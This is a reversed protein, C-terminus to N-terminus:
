TSQSCGFCSHLAHDCSDVTHLVMNSWTKTVWGLRLSMLLPSVWNSAYALTFLVLSCIHTATLERSKWVSTMLVMEKCLQWRVPKPKTSSTSKQIVNGLVLNLIYCFLICKERHSQAPRSCAVPPASTRSFHKQYRMWGTQCFPLHPYVSSVLEQHCLGCSLSVGARWWQLGICGPPKGQVPCFHCHHIWSGVWPLWATAFTWPLWWGLYCVRSCFKSSSLNNEM